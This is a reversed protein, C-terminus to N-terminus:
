LWATMGRDEVFVQGTVYNSGDSGLYVALGKIEGPKGFRGMPRSQSVTAKLGEAQEETLGFGVAKTDHLSPAIANKIRIGRGPYAVAAHSTLGIVGAKMADYCYSNV